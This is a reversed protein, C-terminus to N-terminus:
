EKEGKGRERRKGKIWLELPHHDSDVKDGVRMEKVREKTEREGIIYDIVTNGRGETYTFKGEKDGEINGNYIEWGKEEMFELLKRGEGDIKKDKSSRSM